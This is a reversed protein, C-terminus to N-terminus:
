ERTNRIPKPDVKQGAQKYEWEDGFIHKGEARSVVRLEANDYNFSGTYARRKELEAQAEARTAHRSVARQTTEYNRKVVVCFYDTMMTPKSTKTPKTPKTM